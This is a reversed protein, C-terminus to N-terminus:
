NTGRKLFDLVKFTIDSKEDFYVTTNAELVVTLKESKAVREIASRVKERVPQLLQAQYQQFAGGQGLREQQFRLFKDRVAMIKQEESAKTEANMMAQQKQYSEVLGQYETEIMKLTDAYKQQLTQLQGEIQKFEPLKSIIEDFSVFGMKVNQAAAPTSAVAVFAALTLAAAAIARIHRFRKMRDNLQTHTSALYERDPRAPLPM